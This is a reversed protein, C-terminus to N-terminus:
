LDYLLDVGWTNFNHMCHFPKPVWWFHHFCLNSRQLGKRQSPRSFWPTLNLTHQSKLLSSSNDVPNQSCQMEFCYTKLHPLHGTNPWWFLNRGDFSFKSLSKSPLYFEKHHCRKSQDCLKWRCELELYVQSLDKFSTSLSHLFRKIYILPLHM